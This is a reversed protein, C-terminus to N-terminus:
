YLRVEGAVIRRWISPIKALEARAVDSAAREVDALAAGDKTAVRLSAIQPEDVRRGIESVLVCEAAAVGPVQAVVAAALERAAVQYIKGVHAVPNKGCTAELTMPRMPTILGSARNGRGVEGDDGSEASTGTVTLYVKGSALDDAANVTVEVDGGLGARAAVEALEPVLSRRREAYAERSDVHCGVFACALTFRTRSGRRVGMVKVDEGLWPAHGRAGADLHAALALAAKELPSEPAYGVGISTDNCLWTGAKAHREFLDVLDVSGPRVKCHVRVHADADLAHLHARLWARSTEVALEEVPVSVGRVERTARGALTLEMPELVEGGGFAARSVGGFLLAKDVNHHLVAGFRDLYFRSLARSLEEALADCITDPHGLGKREVIEVDHEPSGETSPLPAVSISHM